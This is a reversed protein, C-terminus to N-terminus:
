ATTANRSQTYTHHVCPLGGSIGVCRFRNPPLMVARGDRNDGLLIRQRKLLTIIETKWKKFFQTVRFNRLGPTNIFVHTASHFNQPQHVLRTNMSLVSNRHLKGGDDNYDLLRRPFLRIIKNRKKPQPKGTAPTELKQSPSITAERGVGLKSPRSPM